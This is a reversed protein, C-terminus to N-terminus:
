KQEGPVVEAMESSTKKQKEKQFKGGVANEYMKM